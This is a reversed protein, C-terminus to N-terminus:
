APAPGASGSGFLGLLVAGLGALGLLISLALYVLRRRRTPSPQFSHLAAIPPVRTSRLAPVLSSVLTVLLGVLLAVVM